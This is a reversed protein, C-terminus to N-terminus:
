RDLAAMGGRDHRDGSAPALNNLRGIQDPTLRIGDAAINEELREVHRTGPIPNIDAGQALLWALAVQAPTAGAETAVSRVEEVIRLNRELNGGTFRPNTRRWDDAALGDLSRINGTLFGHGLPSYPVLGIGLERLVPLVDAEPDRTWLSYESQVAALPHVAHARRITSPGAESLGIYRVKGETVLGALADVTDEIPTSPDVRHQYYLDIHDTGLRRLSGEVALRINAPTSDVGPRGTHSVLGFKTALVVEDRRGRTARGLLAENAGAGYAEATDLHTVGLDVAHQITRVSEEESGDKGTYFASMGMVGLGLRSVELGGLSTTQM